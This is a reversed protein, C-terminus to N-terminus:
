SSAGERRAMEVLSVRHRRMQRVTFTFDGLDVCDGRRPLRELRASLWGAIRDVGEEEFALGFQERLTELNLRGDMIWRGPGMENFLLEHGGKEDAIDGTIEELIDGRTVVGATGGYEDVVVATRRGERIFRTLLSDLPCAEPVYMPPRMSRHVTHEPDLLYARVDLTGQVQDLSDRYLVIRRVRAGRALVLLEAPDTDNLDFGILDVRPTMVDSAQLDELRIVGQLMAREEEGLVGEESGVEVVTRIEEDTLPPGHPTLFRTFARTFRTMLLRIPALAVICAQLLPAYLRAMGLPHTVAIRKPGIEGYVLLLLFAAAIAVAEGSGGPLGQAAAYVLAPVAINVLTNGILITSLLRTPSSLIWEVRRGSRPHEQQLRHVDLPDLSFYAVESSSFFGSILLLVVLGALQAALLATM